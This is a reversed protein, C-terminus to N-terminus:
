KLKNIAWRNLRREIIRILAQKNQKTLGFIAAGYKEVLKDRLDNDSDIIITDKTFKVFISRHFEGTDKLTVRDTPQQKEKKIAVTFPKYEPEIDSDDARIGAFMQDANTEAIAKALSELINILEKYYDRIIEDTARKLQWVNM